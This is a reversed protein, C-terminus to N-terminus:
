PKIETLEALTHREMHSLGRAERVRQFVDRTLGGFACLLCVVAAFRYWGRRTASSGSVDIWYQIGAGVFVCNGPGLFMSIRPNALYPYKGLCAAALSLLQASVFLWWIWRNGRRWYIVLGSLWLLFTLSSGFHNDGVPWAFGRGAHVTLLWWPIRWPQQM